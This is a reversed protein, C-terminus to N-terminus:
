RGIRADPGVWLMVVVAVVSVVIVIEPAYKRLWSRRPPKARGFTYEEYAEQLTRSLNDGGYYPAKHTKFTQHLPKKKM